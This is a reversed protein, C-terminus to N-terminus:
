KGGGSASKFCDDCIGHSVEADTESGSIHCGCWACIVKMAVVNWLSILLDM